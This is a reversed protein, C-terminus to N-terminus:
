AFIFTFVAVQLSLFLEFLLVAVNTFNLMHVSYLRSIDDKTYFIRNKIDADFEFVNFKM